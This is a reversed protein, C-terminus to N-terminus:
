RSRTPEATTGLTAPMCLIGSQLHGWPTSGGTPEVFRAIPKDCYRCINDDSVAERVLAATLYAAAVVAHDLYQPTIRADMSSTSRLLREVAAVVILPDGPRRGAFWAATDEGPGAPFGEIVAAYESVSLERRGHWMRLLTTADTQSLDTGGFQELLGIIERIRDDDPKQDETRPEVSDM